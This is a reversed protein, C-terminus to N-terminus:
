SREKLIFQRVPHIHEKNLEDAINSLGDIAELTNPIPLLYSNTCEFSEGELMFADYKTKFDIVSDGTEREKKKLSCVLSENKSEKKTLAKIKQVMFNGNTAM